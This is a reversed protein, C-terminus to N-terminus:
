AQKEKLNSETLIGDGPLQVKGDFGPPLSLTGSLKPPTTMKGLSGSLSAFREELMALVAANPASSEHSYDAEAFAPASIFFGAILGLFAISKFKQEM